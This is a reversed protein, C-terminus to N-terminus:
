ASEDCNRKEAAGDLAPANEKADPQQEHEPLLRLNTDNYCSDSVKALCLPLNKNDDVSFGNKM